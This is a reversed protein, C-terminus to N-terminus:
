IRTLSDIVYHAFHKSSWALPELRQVKGTAAEASLM